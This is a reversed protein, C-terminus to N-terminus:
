HMEISKNQGAEVDGSLEATLVRQYSVLCCCFYYQFAGGIIFTIVWTVWGFSPCYYYDYCYKRADAYYVAGMIMQVIELIAWIISGIVFFFVFNNVYQLNRQYVGIFGYISFLAVILYFFGLLATLIFYWGSWSSVVILALGCWGYFIVMLAAIIMAGTNLPIFGCCTDFQKFKGMLAARNAQIPTVSQAPNAETAYVAAPQEKFEANPAVYPQQYTIAPSQAPYYPQQLTQAPAPAVGTQQPYQYQQTQDIPQPTVYQYSGPAPSGVTIVPQPTVPSGAAALAPSYYVPQQQSM